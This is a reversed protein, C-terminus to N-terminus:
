VEELEGAIPIERFRKLLGKEICKKILETKLKNLAIYTKAKSEPAYATLAKTHLEIWKEPSIVDVEVSRCIEIMESLVEAKAALHMSVSYLYDLQELKQSITEKYM